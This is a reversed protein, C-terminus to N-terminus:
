EKVIKSRWNNGNMLTVDIIYVGTSLTSVPVKDGETYLLEKGQLDLIRVSQIDVAGQITIENKAPNPYISILQNLDVDHISLNNITICASTDTCGEPSTIRVAYTGNQLPTFSVGIAGNIAAYGNDCDLWQYTYGSVATLKAGNQSITPDPLPNETIYFEQSKAYCEEDQIAVVSYKGSSNVYIGTNTTDGNSWLYSYGPTTSVSLLVSDGSCFQVNSVTLTPQPTNCIGYQAIFGRQDNQAFQSYGTLIITGEDPSLSINGAGVMPYLAPNGGPHTNINKKWIIEGDNNYKVLLSAGPTACSGYQNNLVYINGIADSNIFDFRDCLPDGLNKLWEVTGDNSNFKVLIGDTTGGTKSTSLDDFSVTSSSFYGSLFVNQWTDVTMGTIAAGSSFIKTFLTDGQENYKIFTKTDKVFRYINKQNDMHFYEYSYNGPNSNNVGLTHAYKVNGLTDYVAHFADVDLTNGSNSLTDGNDFIFTNSFTGLAHINDQQDFYIEFDDPPLASYSGPRAITRIWQATGNGADMQILVLDGAFTNQCPPFQFGDMVINNQRYCVFLYLRGKHYLFKHPHTNTYTLFAFPIERIWVGNGTNDYKILIVKGSSNASITTGNITLSTNTLVGAVYINDQEDSTVLGAGSSGSNSLTTAWALIPEPQALTPFVQFLIPIILLTSTRILKKLTMLM